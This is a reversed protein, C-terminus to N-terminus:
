EELMKLALKYKEKRIMDKIGMNDLRDECLNHKIDLIKIKVATENCKIKKIYEMYSEAKKRTLLKLLEIVESPFEKELNDISINSDELVDHLLCVVCEIETDAQEALHIPHYIYPMGTKDVQEKHAEFAIKMAKKTLSTYLM